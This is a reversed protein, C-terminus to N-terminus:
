LVVNFIVKYTLSGLWTRGRFRGPILTVPPAGPDSARLATEGGRLADTTMKPCYLDKEKSYALIKKMECGQTGNRGEPITSFLDM